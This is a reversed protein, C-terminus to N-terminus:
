QVGNKKGKKKDVTRKHYWVMFRDPLIASIFPKYAFYRYKFPVNFLKFYKKNVKVTGIAAKITRKKYDKLSEHYKILPEQLIYGNMGELRFRYFLDLDEARMTEPSVRYGKLLDFSKKRMMTTPHIIPMLIPRKKTESVFPYPNGLGRVYKEGEEDFVVAAAGVVSMEAHEDLYKVQKELREPFCIDDDDMVAIYQGTAVSICQNRSYAARMNKDNKIVKVREDKESYEMAIKYTNDTSCDDCIILEWDTFTQEIISDIARKMTKEGNYIGMIVSVKPSSM